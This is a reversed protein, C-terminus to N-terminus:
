RGAIQLVLGNLICTIERLLDSTKVYRPRPNTFRLIDARCQTHDYRVGFKNITCGYFHAAINDNVYQSSGIKAFTLRTKQATRQM